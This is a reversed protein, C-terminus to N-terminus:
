RKSATLFEETFKLYAKAGKSNKDYLIIPLGYSPAESLRVNRPIVTKYVKAAFHTRVEDAVEVSLRTRNNFMTLLVGELYLSPNLRRQVIKVTEMLQTLGELAFYESQIPVLVSNSATLANLTLLGLSPPCDIIIYDYLDAVKSLADKLISERSIQSVLEVEAGALNMSSPCVTLKDQQTKVVADVLPVDNIIVDYISNNISKKEVGLGTTSNGQPDMDILLTKKKHYALCASLNIATTTKGVGGKQNAVAVIKAM